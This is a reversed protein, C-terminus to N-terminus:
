SKQLVFEGFCEVGNEAIWTQDVKLMGLHYDYNDDVIRCLLVKCGFQDLWEPLKCHHPAPSGKQWFSWTSKHDPNTVSPWRMYEYLEWLPITVILYGGTKIVTLWDMVAAIPYRMHELSQSSHIVDFHNEPFYKSLHNADGDKMDFGQFSDLPVKDPGCGVDLCRTGKFWLRWPLVGSDDERWRRKMAKRTEFSM